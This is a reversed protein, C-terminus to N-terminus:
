HHAPLGPTSCDMPDCLTPCSQAISSFQTFCPALTPNPCYIIIQCIGSPSKLSNYQVLSSSALTCVTQPDLLILVGEVFIWPLSSSPFLIAAVPSAPLLTGVRCTSQLGLPSGLLSSTAHSFPPIFYHWPKQGSFSFSSIIKMLSLSIQLRLMNCLSSVPNPKLCTGNLINILCGLSTSYTTLYKARLYLFFLLPAPTPAAPSPCPCTNRPGPLPPCRGHSPLKSLGRPPSNERGAVSAMLAGPHSSCHTLRVTVVYRHSSLSFGLNLEFKNQNTITTSSFSCEHLTLQSTFKVLICSHQTNLDM